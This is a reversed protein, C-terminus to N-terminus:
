LPKNPTPKVPKPKWFVQRLSHLSCVAWFEEICPVFKFDTHKKATSWTQERLGGSNNSHWRRTFCRICHHRLQMWRLLIVQVEKQLAIQVRGFWNISTNGIFLGISIPKRRVHYYTALEPSLLQKIVISLIYSPSCNTYWSIMGRRFWLAEILLESSWPAGSSAEIWSDRCQHLGKLCLERVITEHNWKEFNMIGFLDSLAFPLPWKSKHVSRITLLTPLQLPWQPSNSLRTKSKTFVLFGIQLDWAFRILCLLERM